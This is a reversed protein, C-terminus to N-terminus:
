RVAAIGSAVRTVLPSSAIEDLDPLRRLFNPWLDLTTGPVNLRDGLGLADDLQVVLLPSCSKALSTHLAVILDEVRTTPPVGACAALRRRRRETLDPDVPIGAANLASTDSGTWVGAVTPLDHTTATVVDDPGPDEYEESMVVALRLLGRGRLPGVGTPPATGLEETVLFAGARCTEAVLVDVLEAAPQDVYAGDAVAGGRPIRYQRLLGLAHDIRLGAAYRTGSQVVQRIPQYSAARLGAVDFPVLGWRHGSQSFYDAPAGLEYDPEILTQWMWADASDLPTAVPLDWVLGAGATSARGIQRDLQWQCWIHFEIEERHRSAFASGPASTPTRVSEPWDLWPSGLHIEATRHIAFFELSRGRRRRYELLELPPLRRSVACFLERLVELKLAVVEDLEAFGPQELEKARRLARLRTTPALDAWEDIWPIHLLAVDLFRRSSPAYPSPDIPSRSGSACVPGIFLYRAGTRRAWVACAELDRMDGIGWSSQSRLSRPFVAWAWSRAPSGSRGGNSAVRVGGRAATVLDSLLVGYPM